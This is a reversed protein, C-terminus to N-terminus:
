AHAETGCEPCRDPTARLDYGCVVCCGARVRRRKRWRWCWMAPPISFMLMTFWCPFWLYRITENSTPDDILSQYGFGLRNAWTESRPRWAAERRTYSWAPPIPLANPDFRGFAERGVAFWGGGAFATDTVQRASGGDERYYLHVVLDEGLKSRVWLTATAFCLLLSIAALLNLARRRM